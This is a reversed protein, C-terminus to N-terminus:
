CYEQQLVNWLKSSNTAQNHRKQGFQYSHRGLTVRRQTDVALRAVADRLAGPRNSTVVEGLGHRRAYCVNEAYEPGYALICRGSALYDAWKSALSTEAITRHQPLFSSLILLVDYEQLRKRMEPAPIAPVHRYVYNGGGSLEAPIEEPSYIDLVIEEGLGKLEDLLSRLTDLYYPNLSGAYIIRLPSHPEISSEPCHDPFPVSNNLVACDKSFLRAFRRQMAESIVFCNRSARWLERQYATASDDTVYYDDMFWTIVPVGSRRFVKVTVTLDFVSQPSTLLVDIQLRRIHGLVQRVAKRTRLWANMHAILANARKVPRFREGRPVMPIVDQRDNSVPCIRSHIEPFPAWHSPFSTPTAYYVACGKPAPELLNFVTHGGGSGPSITMESFFLVNM